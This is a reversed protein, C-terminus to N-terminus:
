KSKSWLRYNYWWKAYASDNIAPSCVKDSCRYSHSHRKPMGITADYRNSFKCIVIVEHNVAQNKPTFMRSIDRPTLWGMVFYNYDPTWQQIIKSRQRKIRCKTAFNNLRRKLLSAFRDSKQIIEETMHYQATTPASIIGMMCALRYM